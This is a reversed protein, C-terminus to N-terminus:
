LKKQKNIVFESNAFKFSSTIKELSFLDNFRLQISVRPKNSSNFGSKHVLFQNFVLVEDKKLFIKKGKLYSNKKIEFTAKRKNLFNLKGENHSNEYITLPGDVNTVNTLNFWITISNKSLFSYWFDQHKLTKYKKDKPRDFRIQPGTGILPYKIGLNKSINLFIKYISLSYFLPESPFIEYLSKIINVKQKKDIKYIEIMLKDFNKSQIKNLKFKKLIFNIKQAIKNKIKNKIKPILNSKIIVYGNKALDKRYNSYNM